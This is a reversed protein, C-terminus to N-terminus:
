PQIEQWAIEAVYMRVNRIDHEGTHEWELLQMFQDVAEKRSTHEKEVEGWQRSCIGVSEFTVKFREGEDLTALTWPTGCAPCLHDGPRRGGMLDGTWCSAKGCDPNHCEYKTRRALPPPQCGNPCPKWREGQFRWSPSEVLGTNACRTCVAHRAEELAENPQDASM